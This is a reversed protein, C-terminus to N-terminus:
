CQGKPKCLINVSIIHGFHNVPNQKFNDVSYLRPNHWEWTYGLREVLAILAQSNEPRDNEIYMIPRCKKILKQSGLLVEQEMGECDIKLFDCRELTDLVAVPVPNGEDHGQVEFGGFNQVLTPIMDPVKVVGKEAGVAMQLCHVNPLSNLQVNACLMQHVLRQPEYAVVVGEIGVLNALQVTHAGINAGVEVVTMGPTVLEAFLDGEEKSFEGYELLSKGVFLDNANVLFKGHRGEVLQAYDPRETVSQEIPVPSLQGLPELGTRQLIELVVADSEAVTATIEDERPPNDKDYLRFTRRMNKLSGVPAARQAWAIWELLDAPGPRYPPYFATLHELLMAPNETWDEMVYPNKLYPDVMADPVNRPAKLMAPSVTVCMTTITLCRLVLFDSQGFMLWYPIKSFDPANWHSTLALPHLHSRGLQWMEAAPMARGITSLPDRLTDATCRLYIGQVSDYGEDMRALMKPLFGASHVMDATLVMLAREEKHARHLARQFTVSQLEYRKEYATSGAPLVHLACPIGLALLRQYNQHAEIAPKTEADTYCEFAVRDAVTPLNSPDLLATLSPGTFLKQYRDGYCLLSMLLRTM